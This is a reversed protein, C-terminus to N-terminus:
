GVVLGFIRLLITELSQQTAIAFDPNARYTQDAFQMASPDNQIAALVIEKDKKLEISAYKL